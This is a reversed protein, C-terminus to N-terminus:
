SQSRTQSASHYAALAAQQVTHLPVGHTQAAAAVDDYEPKATLPQNLRSGVKIRVTGFPTDVPTHHRDLTIRDWPRFRVGLSGTLALLHDALALHDDAHCLVSLTVGPRGKKMTIPTAWADLAGRDLLNQIAHAVAEGTTDDLNTALEIVQNLTSNPPSPKETM